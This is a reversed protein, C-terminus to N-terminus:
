CVFLLFSLYFLEPFIRPFVCVSCDRQGCWFRGHVCMAAKAGQFFFDVCSQTSLHLLLTRGLAPQAALCATQSIEVAQWSLLFIGPWEFWLTFHFLPWPFVQSIALFIM